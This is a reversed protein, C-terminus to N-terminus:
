FFIYLILGCFKRIDFQHNNQGDPTNRNTSHDLGDENLPSSIQAAPICCLQSQISTRTLCTVSICYGYIIYYIPYPIVGHQLEWVNFSAEIASGFPTGIPMIYV